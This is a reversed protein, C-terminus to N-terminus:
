TEIAKETNEEVRAEQSRRAERHVLLAIPPTLVWAGIIDLWSHFHLPPLVILIGYAVLLPMVLLLWRRDLLCLSTAISAAYCTHGSPFEYNGPDGRFGPWIDLWDNLRGLVFSFLLAIFARAFFEAARFNPRRAHFLFVVIFLVTLLPNVSNAIRRLLPPDFTQLLISFENM